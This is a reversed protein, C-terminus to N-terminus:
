RPDRVTCFAMIAGCCHYDSQLRVSRLSQGPRTGCCPKAVHLSSIYHSLAVATRGCLIAVLVVVGPHLPITASGLVIGEVALAAIQGRVVGCALDRRPHPVGALV